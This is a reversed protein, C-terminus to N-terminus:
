LFLTNESLYSDSYYMFSNDGNFFNNTYTFSENAGKFARVTVPNTNIIAFRWDGRRWTGENQDYTAAIAPAESGRDWNNKQAIAVMQEKTPYRSPAAAPQTQQTPSAGPTNGPMSPTNLAARRKLMIFAVVGGIIVVLAISSIIIIKRTEM